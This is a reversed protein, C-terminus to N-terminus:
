ALVRRRRLTVGTLGFGAIMMAWSAPEPVAPPAPYGFGGGPLAVLKGSASTLSAGPSVSIATLKANNFFDITGNTLDDAFLNSAITFTSGAAVMFSLTLDTGPYNGADCEDGPCLQARALLPYLNDLNARGARVAANASYPITLPPGGNIRRQYVTAFFREEIRNAGQQTERIYYNGAAVYLVTSQFVGPEGGNAGYNRFGEFDRADMQTIGGDSRLQELILREYRDGTPIPSYWAPGGGDGYGNLSWGAGRLAYLNLNFGAGDSSGFAAVGDVSVKFSVAVQTGAPGAVTYSDLWSSTAYQEHGPGSQLYIKNIGYDTKARTITGGFNTSVLAGATGSVVVQKAASVSNESEVASLVQQAAAPTTAGLLMILAAAGLMKYRVM